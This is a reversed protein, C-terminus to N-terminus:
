RGDETSCYDDMWERIREIGIANLAEYFDGNGIVWESFHKEGMAGLLKAAGVEEIIDAPEIDHLRDDVDIDAVIERADAEITVSFKEYNGAEISVAKAEFTVTSM